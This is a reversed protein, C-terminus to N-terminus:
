PQPFQKNLLRGKRSIVEGDVIIEGDRRLDCVMDWHLGSQNRGGTEPLSAGLAIHITGGIKEDFLTNKVYRRISYNTGIATEGVFSSGKDMALMARLYEQGKKAEARIVRGKGFSLRVKEVERGNYIAPYPFLIHGEVSNEVPGTFVEGDPLNEHGDCNIWKRGKCIFRLDTDEAIIRVSKSKNLFKVFATQQRSIRQWTKVPDPDSLHLSDFVFDEYEQLSMEADQAHAQCPWPMGVWRLEGKSIRRLSIEFLKKHAAQAIAILKPNTNSLARTNESSLISVMADLHRIRYHDFSSV